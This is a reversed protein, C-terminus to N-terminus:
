SQLAVAFGTFCLMGIDEEGRCGDCCLSSVRPIKVASFGFRRNIHSYLMEFRLVRLVCCRHSAKRTLPATLM